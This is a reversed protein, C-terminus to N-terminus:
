VSRWQAHREPTDQVDAVTSLWVDLWWRPSAGTIHVRRQWLWKASRWRRLVFQVVFIYTQLFCTCAYNTVIVSGLVSFVVVFNEKIYYGILAVSV